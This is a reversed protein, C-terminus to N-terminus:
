CDYQVLQWMYTSSIGALDELQDLQSCLVRAEHLIDNRTQRKEKDQSSSVSLTDKWEEGVEKENCKLLDTYIRSNSSM